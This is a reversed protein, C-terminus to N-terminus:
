KNENFHIGFAIEFKYIGFYITINSGHLNTILLSISFISLLVIRLGRVIDGKTTTIRFLFDM